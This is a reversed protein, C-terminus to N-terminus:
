TELQLKELNRRRFTFGVLRVYLRVDGCYVLVRPWDRKRASAQIVEKQDVKIGFINSRSYFYVGSVKREGGLSLIWAILRFSDKLASKFFHDGPGKAAAAPRKMGSKAKPAPTAKSEGEAKKKKGTKTAAKPEATAKSDEPAKQADPETM